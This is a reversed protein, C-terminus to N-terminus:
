NLRGSFIGAKLSAPEHRHMQVIGVGRVMRNTKDTVSIEKLLARQLCASKRRTQPRTAQAMPMKRGGSPISAVQSSKDGECLRGWYRNVLGGTWSGTTKDFELWVMREATIECCHEKVMRKEERGTVGKWGLRPPSLNKLVLTRQKPSPFLPSMVM